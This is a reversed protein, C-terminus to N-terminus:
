KKEEGGASKGKVIDFGSKRILKLTATVTIRDYEKESEPLEEYPVLCPTTKKRDDRSPGYQWGDRMRAAAWQEHIDRALVEILDALDEGLEINEINQPNPLYPM